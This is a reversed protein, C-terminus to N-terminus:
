TRGLPATIAVATVVLAARLISRRLSLLRQVRTM